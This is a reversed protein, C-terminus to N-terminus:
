TPKCTRDVPLRPRRNPLDAVLQREAFNKFRRLVTILGDAELGRKEIAVSILQPLVSRAGRNVKFFTTEISNLGLHIAGQLPYGGDLATAIREALKIGFSDPDHWQKRHLM